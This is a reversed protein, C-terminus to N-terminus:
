HGFKLGILGGQQWELLTAAAHDETIFAPAKQVVVLGDEFHLEIRWGDLSRVYVATAPIGTLSQGSM